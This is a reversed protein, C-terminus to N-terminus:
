NVKEGAEAAPSPSIPKVISEGNFAFRDKDGLSEACRNIHKVLIRMWEDTNSLKCTLAFGCLRSLEEGQRIVKNVVAGIRGALSMQMVKGLVEVTDSVGAANLVKNAEGLQERLTALEKLIGSHEVARLADRGAGSTLAFDPPKRNNDKIWDVVRQWDYGSMCGCRMSHNDRKVAELEVRLTALEDRICCPLREDVHECGILKGIDLLWQEFQDAQEARLNDKQAQHLVLDHTKKWGDREKMLEELNDAQLQAQRDRAEERVRASRKVRELEVRMTELESKLKDHSLGADDLKKGLKISNDRWLEFQKAVIENEVLMTELQSKAKALDDPLDMAAEWACPRYGDPYPTIAVAREELKDLMKHFGDNSERLIKNEHRMTELQSSQDNWQKALDEEVSQIIEKIGGLLPRLKPNAKIGELIRVSFPQEQPPAAQAAPSLRLEEYDKENGWERFAEGDMATPSYMKNTDDLLGVMGYEAVTAYRKGVTFCSNGKLCLYTRGPKFQPPYCLPDFRKEQGSPAALSGPDSPTPNRFEEIAAKAMRKGYEAIRDKDSPAPAVVRFGEILWSGHIERLCLYPESIGQM